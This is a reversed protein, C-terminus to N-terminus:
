QNFPTPTTILEAGSSAGMTSTSPGVIEPHYLTETPYSTSGGYVAGDYSGEVFGGEVIGGEVFGGEVIGGDAFGVETFGENCTECEAAGGRRWPLLNSLRSFVPPASSTADCSQVGANGLISCGSLSALLTAALIPVILRKM